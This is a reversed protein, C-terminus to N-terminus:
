LSDIATNAFRRTQKIVKAQYLLISPSPDDQTGLNISIDGVQEAHCTDGLLCERLMATLAKGSQMLLDLVHGLHSCMGDGHPSQLSLLSLLLM